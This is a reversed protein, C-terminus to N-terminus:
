EFIAPGIGYGAMERACAQGSIGAGIMAIRPTHRGM